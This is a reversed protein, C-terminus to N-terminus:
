VELVELRKDKYTSGVNVAEIHKVKMRMPWHSHGCYLYRVAPCELLVRGFKGAGLFAAAFAFHAPRDQPVMQAFPLHHMFVAIRDTKQSIEALQRRLKDALRRTFQEDTMGLEVFLGDKWLATLKLQEKGLEHRHDEVLKAYQPRNAAAGPSIKARYFPLPINLSEQRFSYDYWGVSGVLGLGNLVRPNHDLLEFGARRAVEPLIREYRDLSDEGDRRWLCHNGPVLFRAGEFAEFLGLCDALMNTDAGAADGLLVLADARRRCVDAALEEAPKRSRPIDYHLDATILIKVFLNYIDASIVCLPLM